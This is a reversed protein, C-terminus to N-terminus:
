GFILVAIVHLTIDAFFHAIMAYLLGKKWYLLGFGIGAISNLLIARIVVLATLSALSTTMPLHALAFLIAASIMSVWIIWPKPTNEKHRVVLNILWVLLSMFFLRYIIEEGIGGFFSGILGKYWAPLESAFFSLSSGLKYFIFDSLLLFSGISFGIAISSLIFSSWKINTEKKTVISELVPAGLNVKRSIFLGLTAFISLQIVMLLGLVFDSPIIGVADEPLQSLLEKAYPVAGFSALIIGIFLVMLVRKFSQNSKM